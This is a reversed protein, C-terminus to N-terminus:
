LLSKNYMGGVSRSIRESGGEGGLYKSRIKNASTHEGAEDLASALKRWSAELDSRLWHDTLSFKCQQVDNMRNLRIEELKYPKMELVVGVSRWNTVERLALVINRM